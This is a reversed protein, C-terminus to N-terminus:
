SIHMNHKEVRPKCLCKINSPRQAYSDFLHITNAHPKAHNEKSNNKITNIM